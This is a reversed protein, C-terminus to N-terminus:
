IYSTTNFNSHEVTNRSVVDKANLTSCRFSTVDSSDSVNAGNDLLYTDVTYDLRFTDDPETSTKVITCSASGDFDILGFVSFCTL